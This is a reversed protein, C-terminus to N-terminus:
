AEDTTAGDMRGWGGWAGCSMEVVRDGREGLRGRGTGTDWRGLTGDGRM